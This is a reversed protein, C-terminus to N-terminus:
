NSKLETLLIHAKIKDVHYSECCSLLTDNAQEFPLNLNIFHQVFHSLENFIM